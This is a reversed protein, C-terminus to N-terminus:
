RKPSAFFLPIIRKGFVKISDSMVLAKQRRSAILTEAMWLSSCDSVALEASLDTRM